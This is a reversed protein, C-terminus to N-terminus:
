IREERSISTNTQYVEEAQKPKDNKVYDNLGIIVDWTNESEFNEPIRSLYGKLEEFKPFKTLYELEKRVERLIHFYQCRGRTPDKPEVELRYYIINRIRRLVLNARTELSLNNLTAEM